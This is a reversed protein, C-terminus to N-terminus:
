GTQQAAEPDKKGDDKLKRPGTPVPVLTVRVDRPTIWGLATFVARAQESIEGAQVQDRWMTVQEALAHDLGLALMSALAPELTYTRPTRAM